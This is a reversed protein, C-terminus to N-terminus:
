WIVEIDEKLCYPDMGNVKGTKIWAVVWCGGWCGKGYDKCSDCKESKGAHRIKKLTESHLWIDLLSNESQLPVWNKYLLFSIKQEGESNGYEHQRHLNM